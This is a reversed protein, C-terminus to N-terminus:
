AVGAETSKSTCVELCPTKRGIKSPVTGMGAVRRSMYTAMTPERGKDVHTIVCVSNAHAMCAWTRKERGFNCREVTRGLKHMLARILAIGANTSLERLAM